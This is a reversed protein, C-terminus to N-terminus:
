FTCIENSEDQRSTDVSAKEFLTRGASNPVFFSQVPLILFLVFTHTPLALFLFKSKKAGKKQTGLIQFPLYIRLM